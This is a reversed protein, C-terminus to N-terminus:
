RGRGWVQLSRIYAAIAWRDRPKVRDGYSYMVGFGNNMVRVFHGIPATRLRQSHFSPPHPFGRMAVMGNGDGLMGHCPSCDIDFRQRGRMIVDGTIPFPAVAAEADGITGNDLLEDTFAADRAYTDPVQPRSANADAFHSAYGNPRKPPRDFMDRRCACVLILLVFAARKVM